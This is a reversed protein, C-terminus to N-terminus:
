INLESDAVYRAHRFDITPRTSGRLAEALGDLNNCLLDMNWPGHNLRRPGCMVSM